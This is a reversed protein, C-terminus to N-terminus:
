GMIFGSPLSYSAIMEAELKEIEDNAELWLQQGNFVLGGPMQMGTFKKLNEGWQKKILATAYRQLWRDSWVDSYIDPDIVAYAEIVLYNGPEVYGWNMDIHLRNKHRSYRIPKHGILLQEIFALHQMTMFFPVLSHSTLTYLDNLAIQYRVDFMNGVNSISTLDFIKVTGIINDPLTIYGREKDQATIQHKYYIKESGEFHYEWFYNLADQIRDDVQEDTVNITIVPKGLRRLCYEAFEERTTPTAM